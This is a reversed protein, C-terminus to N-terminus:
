KILKLEQLLTRVKVMLSDIDSNNDLEYDFAYDDLSTESSHKDTDAISIYGEKHDRVVNITIGGRKKIAEIENPFRTDTIIWNPLMMEHQLEDEESVDHVGKDAYWPNNSYSEKYDAFLATVWTNPHIINRIADTGVKQMLSRVSLKAHGEVIYGCDNSAYPNYNWNSDLYSEKFNANEFLYLPVGTIISCVEKVKGAFKKIIWGSETDFNLGPNETYESLFVDTPYYRTGLRSPIEMYLWYQIIKGVLDKGSGKKGSISLIM